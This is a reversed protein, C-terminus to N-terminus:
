VVKESIIDKFISVLLTFTMMMLTYILWLALIGPPADEAQAVFYFPISLILANLSILM